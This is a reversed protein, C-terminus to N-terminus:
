QLPLNVIDSVSCRCREPSQPRWKRVATNTLEKFLRVITTFGPYRPEFAEISPGIHFLLYTLFLQNLVVSMKRCAIRKGIHEDNNDAREHDTCRDNQADDREDCEAANNQHQGGHQTNPHPPKAALQWFVACRCAPSPSRPRTFIGDDFALAPHYGFVPIVVPRVLSYSFRWFGRLSAIWAFRSILDLDAGCVGAGGFEIAIAVVHDALGGIDFAARANANELM